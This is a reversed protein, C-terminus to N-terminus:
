SLLVVVVVVAVAVVAFVAVVAVAVAVGSRTAAERGMALSRGESGKGGEVGNKEAGQVRWGSKGPVGRRKLLLGGGVSVVRGEVEVEEVEGGGEVERGTGKWRGREVCANGEGKRLLSGGAGEAVM